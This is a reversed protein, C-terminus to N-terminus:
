EMYVSFFGVWEMQIRNTLLLNWKPLKKELMVAKHFLSKLTYAEGIM